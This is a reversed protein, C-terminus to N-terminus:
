GNIYPRISEAAEAADAAGVRSTAAVWAGPSSGRIAAVSAARIRVKFIVYRGDLEAAAFEASLPQESSQAPSQNPLTMGLVAIGLLSLHKWTNLLLNSTNM